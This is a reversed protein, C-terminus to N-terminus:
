AAEATATAGIRTGDFSQGRVAKGVNSLNRGSVVCAEIGHEKLFRACPGDVVTKAGATTWRDGVVRILGDHDLDTLRKADPDKNPDSTYVGDVNTAIILRAAGAAKALEAAVYDTSHGPTTGGMVVVDNGAAREATEKTTRPVHHYTDVGNGKLFTLFVNANLRTAAVGILDLDEEITSGHRALEIAKRAAHGGGVVVLIQVDEGWEKIAETWQILAHPDPDGSPSVLSGGVALVVREKAM